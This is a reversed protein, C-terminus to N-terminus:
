PILPIRDTPNLYEGIDVGFYDQIWSQTTIALGIAAILTGIQENSIYGLLDLCSLVFFVYAMPDRPDDIFDAISFENSIWTFLEKTTKPPNKYKIGLKKLIKAFKQSKTKMYAIAVTAIIAGLIFLVTYDTKEVTTENVPRDVTLNWGPITGEMNGSSVAQRVGAIDRGLQTSPETPPNPNPPIPPNPSPPSPPNSPPTPPNPAPPNEPPIPPNEPPIPPNVPPNVPPIPPNVPPIGGGSGGSSPSRVQITLSATNNEPSPDAENGLVTATNVAQGVKQAKAAIEMSAVAGWPLNGIDWVGTAPDYDDPSALFELSSPLSYNVRVGTADEPGSNAAQLFLKLNDGLRPTPNDTSMAIILDAKKSSIGLEPSRQVTLDYLIPSTNKQMTQLIAQVQLYRGPPTLDLFSGNSAKEWASWNNKDNSSRVKVEIKTGEPELSNWSVVGWSANELESDHVVTWTGEKATTKSVGGIMSSHGEHTGYVIRKSFDVGNIAPDIRHIYEDGADVVWVKGESDVSLGTPAYGPSISAKFVGDHSYRNVRDVRNGWSSYYESLWVDGDGAVAIGGSTSYAVNKTWELTGTLINIRSLKGERSWWTQKAGYLFLHNDGDLALNYVPYGPNIITMSSTSPDLRLINGEAGASWLIGNQDIVAGQPKHGTTSVDVMKLIQGSSGEIHYYKMTGYTGVWLNNQADVAMALPGPNSWNNAYTGKYEGPTYTGESGPILVVEYLVREDQGWPLIETGVVVGNGDFDQSSEIIGNGNKDLYESLEIKVVTGTQMNGVWCNGEQDIATRSPRAYNLPSTRYRALEMGTKTDVKSLTGENSNPVWIYPLVTEYESLQLQDSVTDHELNVLEGSDFDADTTYTHCANEAFQDLAAIPTETPQSTETPNIDTIIQGTDSTAQNNDTTSQSVTAQNSDSVSLSEAVQGAAADVTVQGPDAAGVAGCIILTFIFMLLLLLPRNRLIRSKQAFVGLFVWLVAIALFDFPMGTNQMPVTNEKTPSNNTKPPNSNDPDDPDDLYPDTPQKPNDPNTEPSTSSETPSTVTGDESDETEPVNVQEPINPTPEPENPSTGTGSGTGPDEPMQDQSGTNIILVSINNATKPDVEEGRATVMNLISGVNQVKATIELTTTSGEALDGLNWIGEAPDYTSQSAGAFELGPPLKYNVQVGTANIPGNNKVEIILKVNEGLQPSPNDSKVNSSLDAVLAKLALNHLVPPENAQLMQLTTEIQLYRGPPTSGLQSGNIADEWASWNQQDNSSRVKVKISTGKPEFGNWSIIGWPANELESDHTVTWTGRRTTIAGSVTGTMDSYGCHTGGIIRKSIEVGNIAPDIRHIYEDENDVVWIKGQNDVSVGTPTNGVLITAKLTGDNSFRSVTGSHSNATWVDGDETVM